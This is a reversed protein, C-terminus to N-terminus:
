TLQNQQYFLIMALSSHRPEVTFASATYIMLYRPFQFIDNYAVQRFGQHKLNAM